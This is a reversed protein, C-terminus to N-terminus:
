REVAIKSEATNQSDLGESTATAQVTETAGADSTVLAGLRLLTSSRAELFDINCVITSTGVCGSGREYFPPGLLKLGDSLKLTLLVQTLTDRTPNDLYVTFDVEEGPSASTRTGVISPVLDVFNPTAGNSRAGYPYKFVASATATAILCLSVAVAVTGWASAGRTKGKISVGSSVVALTFATIAAAAVLAAGEAHNLGAWVIVNSSLTHVFRAKGLESPVRVLEGWITERLPWNAPWVLTMAVTPVISFAALVSTLRPKWLLAPGLGVALFPLCPILFRPGPSLGGYPLFYGADLLVFVVVVVACVIAEVRYLRGLRAIGWAAAVLVPSLVLLGGSSSFVSYLGFLHPAEVGFLGTAQQSALVNAIYGYSTRWPRGFALTDYGLLLVVPPLAGAVYRGLPRIGELAVYVGVLVLLLAGQYEVLVGTGGLVGALLPRGKWALLFAGFGFAALPLEAFNVAAFPAVLTGLAFSVLALGGYGPALGEALRGILFALVLFAIGSSTVRILWTRLSLVPVHQAPPFAVIATAPLELLSLGPGKDSYLHGGYSSRDFSSALCRDNYLRGHVIAQSLCVRSQDQPSYNSVPSLAAVAVLVLLILEHRPRRWPVAPRQRPPRSWRM